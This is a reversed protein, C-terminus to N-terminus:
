HQDLVQQKVSAKLWPELVPRTYDPGKAPAIQLLGSTPPGLCRHTLSFRSSELALYGRNFDKDPM